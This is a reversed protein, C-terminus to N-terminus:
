QLLTTIQQPSGLINYYEAAALMYGFLATFYAKGIEEEVLLSENVDKVSSMQNALREQVQTTTLMAQERAQSLSQLDRELVTVKNRVVTAGAELLSQTNEAALKVEEVLMRSAKVRKQNSFGSFLTWQMEVGVLWPPTIVPLDRQYLNLSAIGFINPLNLSRTGKVTTEALATKSNVAKWVPNGKWFEVPPATSQLSRYRLTDTITLVTDQPLQMLRKLEVLANSKELLLNQQRSRAYTLAVTAWNRQYPPIIENNVLSIAYKENKEMAGVIREQSQLVANVYLIRIYAAALAFDTQKEVLEVNVIGSQYEAAAINRATALKGGLYIPQRLGLAATFYSQKSLAPNYDPYVAGIINKSTNYIGDQVQQPLNNGTIQQYVTNAASVSQQSSGEVVGNKVQQLNIELPRSLYNYGALLDIKPFYTTEEAKLHYQRADLSRRAQEVALNNNRALRFCDALTLEASQAWAGRSTAIILCLM